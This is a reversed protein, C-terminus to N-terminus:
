AWHRLTWPRGDRYIDEKTHPMPRSPRHCGKLSGLSGVLALALWGEADM